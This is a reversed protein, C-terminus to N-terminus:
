FSIAKDRMMRGIEFIAAFEVNKVPAIIKKNEKSIYNEGDCFVYDYIKSIDYIYDPKLKGSCQIIGIAISHNGGDVWAVGLPLWLEVTHNSFDQEWVGWARGKGINSIANILRTRHWPWPLILDKGLQIEKDIEVPVKFDEFRKRTALLLDRRSFLITEPCVHGPKLSTEKEEFLLQTLYKTQLDRGILRVVDIIPHTVPVSKNNKQDEKTVEMVSNAFQMIKNFQNAKENNLRLNLLRRLM